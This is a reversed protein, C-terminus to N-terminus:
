SLVTFLCVLQNKVSNHLAESDQNWEFMQQLTYCIIGHGPLHEMQFAKIVFFIKCSHIHVAQSQQHCPLTDWDSEFECKCRANM